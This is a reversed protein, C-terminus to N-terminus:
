VGLTLKEEGASRMTEGQLEAALLSGTNGPKPADEGRDSAGGWAGGM